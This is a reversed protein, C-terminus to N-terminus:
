SRRIHKCWHRLSQIREKRLLCNWTRRRRKRLSRQAVQGVLLILVGLFRRSLKSKILLLDSPSLIWDVVEPPINNTFVPLVWPVLQEWWSKENIRVRFLTTGEEFLRGGSKWIMIRYNIITTTMTTQINCLELPSSKSNWLPSLRQPKTTQLVSKM